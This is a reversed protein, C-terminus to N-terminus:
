QEAEKGEKSCRCEPDHVIGDGGSHTGCIHFQIYDHGNYTFHRISSIQGYTFCQDELLIQKTYVYPVSESMTEGADNAHTSSNYCSVFALSLVIFTFLKKMYTM